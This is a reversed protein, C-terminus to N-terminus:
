SNDKKIGKFSQKIILYQDMEDIFQYLSAMAIFNEHNEPLPMKSFEDRVVNLKERFIEATNGSHVHEALQELFDAVLKTQQVMVPLTTIKPLVREIIELQKERMKFYYYYNDGKVILHNEVDRLALKKAKLLLDHAEIIEKGDWTTDGNRLYKVIEFFISRYMDELKELYQNLKKTSDGMYMNVALGTGFGIIMLYLENLLLDVSIQRSAFIHLIIVVSSVFGSQVKISVLTPIFVLLMLGLVVPHYGLIEFAISAYILGIISAVLRNTVAQLSKKKTDQICLITLIGASQFFQLHFLSSIWISITAGVASKITRYGISFKKIKITLEEWRFSYSNIFFFLPM